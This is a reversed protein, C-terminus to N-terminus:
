LQSTDVFCVVYEQDSTGSCAWLLGPVLGGPDFLYRCVPIRAVTLIRPHGRGCSSSPVWNRGHLGSGPVRSCSDSMCSGFLFLWHDSHLSGGRRPYGSPDESSSASCLSQSRPKLRRVRALITGNAQALHPDSRVQALQTVYM